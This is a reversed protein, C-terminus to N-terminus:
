GATTISRALAEPAGLPRALEVSLGYRQTLWEASLYTMWVQGLDDQWVLIKLPLDMASLPVADMLPTGAVPNGFVLLKTERLTQGAEAAAGDQDIVAFVTAGAARIAARLREVTESVSLPSRRNTIGFVDAAGSPVDNMQHM